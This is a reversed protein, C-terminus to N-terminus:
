HAEEHSIGKPKFSPSLTPWGLRTSFISNIITFHPSALILGKIVQNFLSDYIPNNPVHRPITKIVIM